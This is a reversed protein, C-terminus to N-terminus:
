EASLLGSVTRPAIGTSTVTLLLMLLVVLVSSCMTLSSDASNMLLVQRWSSRIMLSLKGRGTCSPSATSVMEVGTVLKDGDVGAGHPHGTRVKAGSGGTGSKGSVSSFM